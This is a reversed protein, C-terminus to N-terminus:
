VHCELSEETARTLAHPKNVVPKSIPFTSTVAASMRFGDSKSLAVTLTTAQAILQACLIHVYAAPYFTMLFSDNPYMIQLKEV